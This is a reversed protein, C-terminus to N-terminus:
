LNIQKTKPLILFKPLQTKPYKKPYNITIKQIASINFYFHWDLISDYMRTHIEVSQIIM